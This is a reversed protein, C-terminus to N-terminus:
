VKLGMAAFNAEEYGDYELFVAKQEKVITAGAPKGAGSGFDMSGDSKYLKGGQGNLLIPRSVPQGENDRATILEVRDGSRTRTRNGQDVFRIKFGTGRLRFTCVVLVKAQGPYQEGDPIISECLMCRPRITKGAIRFASANIHDMYKLAWEPDFATAQQRVTLVLESFQRQPPNDPAEFSSTVIPNRHIDRDIPESLKAVSWRWTAPRDEEDEDGSPAEYDVRVEWVELGLARAMRRRCILRPNSGYRTLREIAPVSARAQQDSAAGLVTYIETASDHSGETQWSKVVEIM